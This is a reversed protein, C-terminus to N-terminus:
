RRTFMALEWGFVIGAQARVLHLDEDLIVTTPFVDVAYARVVADDALLIPYGLGLDEKARALKARDGSQVAVGLVTVDPHARAFAAFGPLEVRCPACWTAWFNIVVPKGRLDALHVVTGDTSVLAFDPASQDAATHVAPQPRLLQMAFFVAVAALISGGWTLANTRVTERWGKTAM